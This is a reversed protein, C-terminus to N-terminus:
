SPRRHGSSNPEQGPSVQDAFAQFKRLTEPSVHHEIGEADIAAISESVGIALLFQYVIDHRKKSQKALKAGNATLEIPAYPQTSAYGDRVLRAITRNVTVSTVGFRGALDIARCVGKLATIDAIAEVYDEALESAHDARTKRHRKIPQPENMM